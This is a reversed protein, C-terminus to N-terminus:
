SIHLYVNQNFIKVNCNYVFIYCTASLLYIDSCYFIDISFILADEIRSTNLIEM